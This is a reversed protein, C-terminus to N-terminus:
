VTHTVTAVPDAFQGSLICHASPLIGFDAPLLLFLTSGLSLFGAADTFLFAPDTLFLSSEAGLLFLVFLNQISDGASLFFHGSDHHIGGQFLLICLRGASPIIDMLDYVFLICLFSGRHFLGPHSGTIKIFDIHRIYMLHGHLFRCVINGIFINRHLFYATCSRKFLRKFASFGPLLFRCKQCGLCFRDPDMLFVNRLRFICRHFGPPRVPSHLLHLRFLFGILCWGNTAYTRLDCCRLRRLPIGKRFVLYM